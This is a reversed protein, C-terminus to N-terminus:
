TAAALNTLANGLNHLTGTSNPAIRLASRYAAAAERDDGLAFYINGIEHWFEQPQESPLALARRYLELAEAHRGEVARVAGLRAAYLAAGPELEAAHVTFQAATELRGREFDLLGREGWAEADAPRAAIIADLAGEAGALRGAPHPARAAALDSSGEAISAGGKGSRQVPM